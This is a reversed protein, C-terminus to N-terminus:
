KQEKREGYSCFDDDTIEMWSAPCVLFGKHNYKANEKYKCEGCTVPAPVLDLTPAMHLMDYIERDIEGPYSSFEDELASKSIYDSPM